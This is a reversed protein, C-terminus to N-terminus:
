TIRPGDYDSGGDVIGERLRVVRTGEMSRRPASRVTQKCANRRRNGDSCARGAGISLKGRLPVNSRQRRVRPRCVRHSRRAFGDDAQLRPQGPGEMGMAYVAAPDRLQRRRRLDSMAERPASAPVSTAYGLRDSSSRTRSGAMFLDAGHTLM